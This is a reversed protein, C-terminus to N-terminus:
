QLRLFSPPPSSGGLGPLLKTWAALSSTSLSASFAPLTLPGASFFLSGASLSHTFSAIFALQELEYIFLALRHVHRAIEELAASELLERARNCLLRACSLVRYKLETTTSFTIQLSTFQRSSNYLQTKVCERKCYTIRLLYQM